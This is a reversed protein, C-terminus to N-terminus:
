RGRGSSKGKSSGSSRGASSSKGSSKGSSKSAYTSKTAGKSQSSASKKVMSRQYSKTQGSSKKYPSASRAPAKTASSKKAYQQAPTKNTGTKRVPHNLAQSKMARPAGEGLQRIKGTKVNYRGDAANRYNNQHAALHENKGKKTCLIQINSPNDAYQPYKSVSKMHHGQYGKVRGDRLLERQEKQTWQRTGRGQKVLERERKWAGRVGKSRLNNLEKKSYETSM